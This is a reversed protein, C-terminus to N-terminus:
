ILAQDELTKRIRQHNEWFKDQLIKFLRLFEPDDKINDMLPDLNLFLLIWYQYNSQESFLQMQHLAEKKDDIFAYYVAQSLNKYMSRDSTAYDFYDKLLAESEEQKGVKALVYSIKANEYRFVDMHQSARLDLFKRYYKYAGDFDRMYFHIKGTEQLVDLRTPDEALVTILQDRTKKLDRNKAYLIYAKVYQSFINAPNYALSLDIYKLAEDTFGTQILANSVHLYVYSVTSSDYSGIDLQIGKLAYELYKETNPRYNTYYDSLYNIALASNPQFDLAKEFYPLALEYERSNMFFLGKAILGQSIQPDHTLASDAFDNISDSYLKEVRFLDLYYYGIAIDAYARAFEPDHKVAKKFWSIARTLNGESGEKFLDLGKLYCDYAVLNRTPVKEIRKKEEPTIIVQIHEAINKAVESQLAFIDRVERNYQESWLHQDGSADILQISLMIKDSIKQGSGEIIYKVNLEEAIEPITKSTNRFKEVSTRSVVRLGKIKQLNNLISEMLGNIIYVNSSDRSDNIFPLVAISRVNSANEATPIFQKNKEFFGSNSLLYVIVIVVASVVAWVIGPPFRSKKKRLHAGPDSKLKGEHHVEDPVVLGKNTIAFVELPKDVNKLEFVGMSTTFIGPQNKVEDFVKESIFVSGVSALSEIRSAVNVGDGIIDDDTFIIDGTHIGVRVPIQSDEGRFALQMEIGCNVADIASSFTSLTGDGYYQLIRGNYKATVANFIERHRNRFAVAKAEDRQMLATYGQIDTFMIAALQHTTPSQQSLDSGSGGERKGAEGPPYGYHERFCKIFYSTSSFGVKFAVESVNLSTQKLMEMAEEIRVQRIFQSVSLGSQSKIKRLLNSRSMGMETALESVGFREDSVNDKIIEAAKRLFDNKYNRFDAM